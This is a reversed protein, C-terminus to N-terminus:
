ETSSSLARDRMQLFCISPGYRPSADEGADLALWDDPFPAAQGPVDDRRPKRVAAMTFGCRQAVTVLRTLQERPGLALVRAPPSASTSPPEHDCREPPPYSKYYFRHTSGIHNQPYFYARITAEAAGPPFALRVVREEGSRGECTIQWGHEAADRRIIEIQPEMGAVDAAVPPPTTVASLLLLLM